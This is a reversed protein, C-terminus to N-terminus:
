AIGVMSRPSPCIPLGLCAQAPGHRGRIGSDFNEQPRYNESLLRKNSGTPYAPFAPDPSASGGAIQLWWNASRKIQRFNKIWDGGGAVNGNGLSKWDDVWLWGTDSSVVGVGSGSAVVEGDTMGVGVATVDLAAIVSAESLSSSTAAM